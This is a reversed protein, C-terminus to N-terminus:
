RIHDYVDSFGVYSFRYRIMEHVKEKTKKGWVNPRLEALYERLERIFISDRVFSHTFLYISGFLSLYSGITKLADYFMFWQANYVKYHNFSFIVTAVTNDGNLGPSPRPAESM